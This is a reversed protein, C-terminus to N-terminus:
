SNGKEKKVALLGVELLYTELLGFRGTKRRQVESAPAAKSRTPVGAKRRHREKGVFIVTNV